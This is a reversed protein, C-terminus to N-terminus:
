DSQSQQQPGVEVIIGREAVSCLFPQEANALQDEFLINASPMQQLLYSGLQRNFADSSLLILTAGMNSTTNHLDIIMLKQLAKQVSSDISKNLGDDNWTAKAETTWDVVLSNAISIKM